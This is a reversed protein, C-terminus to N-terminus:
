LALRLQMGYPPPLYKFPFDIKARGLFERFWEQHGLSRDDLEADICPWVHWHTARVVQLTVPNTHTRGSDVDLRLVAENRHRLVFSYKAPRRYRHATLIVEGIIRRKGAIMGSVGFRTEIYEGHSKGRWRYGRVASKPLDIFAAVKSAFDADL